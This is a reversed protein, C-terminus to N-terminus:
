QGRRSYRLNVSSILRKVAIAGALLVVAGSIAAGTGEIYYATSNEKAPTPPSLGIFLGAGSFAGVGFEALFTNLRRSELESLSSNEGSQQSEPSM